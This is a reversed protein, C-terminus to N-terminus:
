HRCGVRLHELQAIVVNCRVLDAEKTCPWEGDFNRPDLQGTELLTRLRKLAEIEDEFM